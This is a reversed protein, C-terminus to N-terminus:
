LFDRHFPLVWALATGSKDEPVVVLAPSAYSPDPLRPQWSAPYALRVLRFLRCARCPSPLAPPRGSGATPTHVGPSVQVSGARGLPGAAAPNPSPYPCPLLATQADACTSRHHRPGPRRPGLGARGRGLWRDGGVSVRSGLALASKSGQSCRVSCARLAYTMRRTVVVFCRSQQLPPSATESCALVRLIAASALERSVAAM